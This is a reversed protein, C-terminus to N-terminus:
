MTWSQSCMQGGVEIKVRM